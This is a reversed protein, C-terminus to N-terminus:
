RLLRKLSLNSVFYQNGFGYGHLFKEIFSLETGAPHKSFNAILEYTSPPIYIDKTQEKIAVYSGNPINVKTFVGRGASQITSEKVELDSAPIDIIKSDIGHGRNCGFADPKTRCFVVEDARSPYQFAQMTAGDFYVLPNKGAKTSRVRKKIALNVEAENAYWRIKNSASAFAM